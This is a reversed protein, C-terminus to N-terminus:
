RASALAPEESLGKSHSLYLHALAIYADVLPEEKTRQKKFYALRLSEVFAAELVNKRFEQRDVKFGPDISERISAYSDIYCLIKSIDSVISYRDPNEIDMLSRAIDKYETGPSANSTDGLVADNFWNDAKADNHSITRKENHEASTIIRNYDEKFGEIFRGFKGLGKKLRSFTFFYPVNAQIKDNSTQGKLETHFLSLVYMRHNFVDSGIRLQKFLVYKDADEMMDIGVIKTCVVHFRDSRLENNNEFEVVRAVYSELRPNKQAIRSIEQEKESTERSLCVKPFIDKAALVAGLSEIEKREEISFRDLDHGSQYVIPIKVGKEDLQARVQKLADLGEGLAGKHVLKNWSNDIFIAACNVLEEEGIRYDLPAVKVKEEAHPSYNGLLSIEKDSLIIFHYKTVSQLNDAHLSNDIYPLYGEKWIKNKRDHQRASVNPAIKGLSRGTIVECLYHMLTPYTDDDIRKMVKKAEDDIFMDGIKDVVKEIIGEFQPLFYVIKSDPNKEMLLPVTCSNNTLDPVFTGIKNFNLEHFIHHSLNNVNAHVLIIDWNQETFYGNNKSDELITNHDVDILWLDVGNKHAYATCAAENRIHEDYGPSNEERCRDDVVLIRGKKQEFIKKIAEELSM